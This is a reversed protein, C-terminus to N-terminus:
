IKGKNKYNNYNILIMTIKNIKNMIQKEMILKKIKM